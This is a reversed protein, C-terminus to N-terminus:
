RQERRLLDLQELLKANAEYKNSSATGNMGDKKSPSKNINVDSIEMKHVALTLSAKERSHM